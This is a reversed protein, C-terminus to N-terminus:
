LTIGKRKRTTKNYFRKTVKKTVDEMNDGCIRYLSPYTKKTKDFLYYTPYSVCKGFSKKTPTIIMKIHSEDIDELRISEIADNIIEKRDKDDEVSALYMDSALKKNTNFDDLFQQLQKNDSKLKLLTQNLKKREDTVAELKKTKFAERKEKNSIMLATSAIEVELEDIEELRKTAADIKKNNDAISSIANEKEVTSDEKMKLTKIVTAENWAVYDLYNLSHHRHCTPCVYCTTNLNAIMTHGCTCKVLSKAYYVYKHSYKSMARASQCKNIAQQQLEETVIAKYKLENHQKNLHNNGSYALNNIMKRIKDGGTDYSTLREWTGNEVLEIFISRCSKQTTVYENFVWRVIEAEEENIEITKDKNDTTYGYLVKGQGAKGEAVAKARGQAFRIKKDEMEQTATQCAIEFMIGGLLTVNGDKDLLEIRTNGCVVLQIKHSVFFAKISTLVDYRRGIRSVERVYVCNISPDNLIAEKMEVLGLRHEEDNKIASEKNEINILDKEKYGDKKAIEVLEKTQQELSQNLTSVRSLIIAKM